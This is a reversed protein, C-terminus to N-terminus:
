VSKSAVSIKPCIEKLMCEECKPRRAFCISRGHHILQHSFDIWKSQPIIKQLDKEIKVADKNKTLGLRYCLRAVHTDVVVGSPIKFATGMVVNATKRGVGRLAVLADFDQPVIGGHNKVLATSMTKLSLAKNKFFGTSRILNEIRSLSARSMAKADPFHHFLEPTVLNVRVDTCQASLITAVVLEFPNKFNLSCTADGYHRSLLRLIAKVRIGEAAANTKSDVSRKYQFKKGLGSREPIEM